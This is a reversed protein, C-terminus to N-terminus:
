NLCVANPCGEEDDFTGYDYCGISPSYRVEDFRNGESDKAYVVDFDGAQPNDSLLKSLKTVYEGFKM